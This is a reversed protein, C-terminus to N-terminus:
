PVASLYNVQSSELQNNLRLLILYKEYILYRTEILDFKARIFQSESKIAESMSYITGALKKKNHSKEPLHKLISEKEILGKLEAILSLSDRKIKVKDLELKQKAQLYDIKAKELEQSDSLFPIKLAVQLQHDDFNNLKAQSLSIFKLLQKSERNKKEFEFYKLKIKDDFESNEPENDILMSIKIRLEESSVLELMEIKNILGQWDDSSSVFNKKIEEKKARLEYKFSNFDSLDVLFNTIDFDLSHNANLNSLYKQASQYIDESNNLVKIAQHTKWYILLDRYAELVLNQNSNSKELKLIKKRQGSLKFENKLGFLPKLTYRTSFESVKGKDDVEIRLQTEDFPLLGPNWVEDVVSESQNNKNVWKLIPDNAHALSSFQLILLCFYYNLRV